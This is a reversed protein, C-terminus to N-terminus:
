VPVVMPRLLRWKGTGVKVVDKSRLSGVSNRWQPNQLDECSNVEHIRSSSAQKVHMIGIWVPIRLCGFTSRWVVRRREVNRLSLPVLASVWGASTMERESRFFISPLDDLASRSISKNGCMKSNM